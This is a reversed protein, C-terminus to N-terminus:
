TFGNDSDGNPPRVTKTRSDLESKLRTRSKFTAVLAFVMVIAGTVVGVAIPPSNTSGGVIAAVIALAYVSAGLKIGFKISKKTVDVPPIDGSPQESSM